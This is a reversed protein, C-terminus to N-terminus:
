VKCFIVRSLKIKVIQSGADVLTECLGRGAVIGVSEDRMLTNKQSSGKPVFPLNPHVYPNADVNCCMQMDKKHILNNPIYKGKGLETM